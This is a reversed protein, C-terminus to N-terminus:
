FKLTCLQSNGVRIAPNNLLAGTITVIEVGSCSWMNLSTNSQFMVHLYLVVYEGDLQTIILVLPM